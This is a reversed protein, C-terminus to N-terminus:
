LANLAFNALAIILYEIMQLLFFVVLISFDFGCIPPIIKHLVSLLPEIRAFLFFYIRFFIGDKNKVAGFFIFWGLIVYVTLLYEIFRIFSILFKALFIIFFM